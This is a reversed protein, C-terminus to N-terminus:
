RMVQTRSLAFLVAAAGRWGSKSVESQMKMVQVNSYVRFYAIKSRRSILRGFDSFFEFILVLALDTLLKERAM